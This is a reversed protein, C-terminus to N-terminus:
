ERGANKRLEEIQKRLLRLEARLAELERELEVPAPASAESAKARSSPAPAPVPRAVVPPRVAEARVAPEPAVPRAVAVPAGRDKGPGPLWGIEVLVSRVGAESRLGVAVKAGPKVSSIWRDLDDLSRIQEAGVSVLVDGEALGAKRAPSDALVREIRVGGDTELVSVGLFGRGSSDPAAPEAATRTEVARSEVAPGAPEHRRDKKVGAAGGEAPAPAAQPATNSAIVEPRDGLKVIVISEKGKRQVKLSVRDGAAAKRIAAVFEASNATAQDGVALMVDGVQLGAKAAPSGPIVEAIVAENRDQELYVGLWGDAAPPALFLLSFLPTIRAYM